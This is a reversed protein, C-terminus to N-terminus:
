VIYKSTAIAASVSVGILKSAHTVVSVVSNNGWLLACALVKQEPPQLLCLLIGSNCHGINLVYGYFGKDLSLGVHVNDKLNDRLTM